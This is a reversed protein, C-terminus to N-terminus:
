PEKRFEWRREAVIAEILRGPDRYMDCNIDKSNLARDFEGREDTDENAQELRVRDQALQTVDTVQAVGAKAATRLLLMNHANERAGDVADGPAGCARARGLAQSFAFQMSHAREFYWTFLFAGVALIFLIQVIAIFSLFVRGAFVM